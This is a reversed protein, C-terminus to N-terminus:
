ANRGIPHGQRRLRSAWGQITHRPVQYHEALGSLSGAQEYAALVEEPPPMRRYARGESTDAPANAARARRSPQREGSAASRRGGRARGTAAAGAPTASGGSRRGREGAVPGSTAEQEGAPAAPLADSVSLADTLWRVARGRAAPDLPQLAQYAAEMAAFESLAM